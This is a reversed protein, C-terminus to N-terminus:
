VAASRWRVSAATLFRLRRARRESRPSSASLVEEGRFPLRRHVVEIEVGGVVQPGEHVVGERVQRHRGSAQLDAGAIRAPSYAAATTRQHGEAREGCGGDDAQKGHGGQGS